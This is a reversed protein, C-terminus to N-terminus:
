AALPTSQRAITVGVGAQLNVILKELTATLRVDVEVVLMGAAIQEPTDNSTVSWSGRNLMGQNEIISLRTSISARISGPLEDTIPAGIYPGMGADITKALFYTMRAYTDSNVGEDSSANHGIRCGWMPGAPIPNTILDVGAEVLAALDARSYGGEEGAGPLGLRQSGVVGLVPKNLASIHPSLNALRGAKFSAQSTSRLRGTTSDRWVLHDGHLIDVTWDDIGASEKLSGVDDVSTGAPFALIGYMKEHACFQVVSAWTTIDDLDALLLISVDVGRLAYMGTRVAGDTGLLDEDEVGDAGDTGGTLSFTADASIAAATGPNLTVLRSAGRTTTGQGVAVALDPWFTAAAINDYTESVRGPAAIVARYTGVKSGKGITVRIGNGFSGTYLAYFASGDPGAAQAKTETGDTVRVIKFRSAGQFGAVVVATGADHERERAPGFSIAYDAYSGVNVAKAIPGWSATGVVALINTAVEPLTRNQPPMLQVYTDPVQLAATNLEGARTIPM